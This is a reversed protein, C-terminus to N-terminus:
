ALVLKDKKSKLRENELISNFVSGLLFGSMVTAPEELLKKNEIENKGGRLQAIIFNKFDINLDQIAIKYCKKISDSFVSLQDILWIPGHPGKDLGIWNKQLNKENLGKVFSSFVKIVENLREDNYIQTISEMLEIGLHKARINKSQGYFFNIRWTTKSTEKDYFNRLEFRVGSGFRLGKIAYWFSRASPYTSGENEPKSNVALPHGFEQIGNANSPKVLDKTKTELMAQAVHFTILPPIANGIMKIKSNYSNSHFQYNIPFSQLSARERVTLRRLNNNTDRIIISERSVRTCVATITRAPRDQRDPFSMRNYIPHHTKSQNNIWEEEFNLNAELIHDTLDEKNCKLGYVPDIVISQNLSNIVFELNLKPLGDRYSEFLKFPFRGAIMRKRDQPVGFESSNYVNIDDFLYKFRKLSGKSLQKELIGAVRPVNEMAWYTPELYEVIELFKKIDKLGDKIDGQGGRNSFSFQTCPPSGVVYRIKRPNPLDDMNIARIDVESHHTGFNLNHTNNAEKWWEYSALVPIGALKFGLSWGGIGSYLDIAAM